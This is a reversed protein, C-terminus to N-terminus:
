VRNQKVYTTVAFTTIFILTFTEISNLGILGVFMEGSMVYTMLFGIWVCLIM